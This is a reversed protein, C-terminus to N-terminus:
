NREISNYLLEMFNEGLDDQLLLHGRGYKNFEGPMRPILSYGFPSELSPGGNITLRNMKKSEKFGEKILELFKLNLSIPCEDNM